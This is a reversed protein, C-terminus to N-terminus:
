SQSLRQTSQEKIPTPLLFSSTVPLLAQESGIQILWDGAVIGLGDAPQTGDEASCM